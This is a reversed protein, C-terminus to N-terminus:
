EMTRGGDGGHRGFFEYVVRFLWDAPTGIFAGHGGGAPRCFTVGSGAGAADPLSEVPILPDNLANICLLPTEVRPLARAASARRWYDRASSFGHVPATYLADFEAMTRVRALKALDCIYAFRKAKARIKPRLSRLFHAGYVRRNVGGDLRRVCARLDFPASVAVAASDFEGRALYHVLASGGLSVGVVFMASHLFRARCFALMWAVEDADGAHYARPYRNLHGGCGRFHPVAVTWKQESFGRALVRVARSQSCGELGHLIVVMPKAGVGDIYDLAIEDDDRTQAIERQYVVEPARWFAAAVSQGHGGPLCM